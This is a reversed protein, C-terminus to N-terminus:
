KKKDFQSAIKKKEQGSKMPCYQNTTSNAIPWLQWQRNTKRNKKKGKQNM